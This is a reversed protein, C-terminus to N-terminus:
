EVVTVAKVNAPTADGSVYGIANPDSQVIAIVERDTAKEPPPVDKGSFFQQQWYNKVQAVSRRHVAESFSARAPSSAVQDVPQVPQGSGWKTVKKLFIRSLEERSLSTIPNATNVVVRYAPEAAVGPRGGLVLLVGLTILPRRNTTM